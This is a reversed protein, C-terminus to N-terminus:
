VKFEEPNSWSVYLSLECVDDHPYFSRFREERINVIYGSNILIEMLSNKLNEVKADSIIGIPVTINSRGAHAADMINQNVDSVFKEFSSAYKTFAKATEASIIKNESM